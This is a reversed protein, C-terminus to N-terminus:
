SRFSKERLESIGSLEDAWKEPFRNYYWRYREISSWKKHFLRDFLNNGIASFIGIIILYLIGFYRSQVSHGAKHSPTLSLNTDNICIYRGLSVGSIYRLLKHTKHKYYTSVLIKVNYKIEIEKINDIQRANLGKKWIYSFLLGLLNQPLEWIYFLINLIKKM